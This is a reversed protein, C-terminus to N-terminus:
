GDVVRRTRLCPNRALIAVLPPRSTNFARRASPRLRTDTDATLYFSGMQATKIKFRDLPM